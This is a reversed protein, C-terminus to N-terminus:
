NAISVRWPESQIGIMGWQNWYGWAETQSHTGNVM